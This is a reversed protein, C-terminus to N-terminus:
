QRILTVMNISGGNFYVDCNFTTNLNAYGTINNINFKASTSTNFTMAASGVLVLTTVNLDDVMNFSYNALRFYPIVVGNTTLNMGNVGVIVYGAGTITNGSGYTANGRHIIYIGSDITITNTYATSDWGDVQLSSGTIKFNPSSADLVATNGDGSTPVVGLSWNGAVNSNSNIAGTFINNAM